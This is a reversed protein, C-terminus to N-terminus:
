DDVMVVRIDNLTVTGYRQGKHMSKFVSKQLKAQNWHVPLRSRMKSKLDFVDDLTQDRLNGLTNLHFQFVSIKGQAALIEPPIKKPDAPKYKEVLETCPHDVVKDAAPRFFTILATTTM